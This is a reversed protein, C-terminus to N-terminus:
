RRHAAILHGDRYLNLERVAGNDNVVFGISDNTKGVLLFKTKSSAAVAAIKDQGDIEIELHGNRATVAIQSHAPADTIYNGVYPELWASAPASVVEDPYDSASSNAVSDAATGFKDPTNEGDQRTLRRTTIGAAIKRDFRPAIGASSSAPKIGNETAQESTVTEPKSLQAANALDFRSQPQADAQNDSTAVSPLTFGPSSTTSSDSSSSDAAYSEVPLVIAARHTWSYRMAFFVVCFAAISLTVGYIMAGPRPKFGPLSSFVPSGVAPISDGAFADAEEPSVAIRTWQRVLSVVGDALLGSAAHRETRAESAVTQDFICLMEETFRERFAPPHLRLLWSYLLRLM